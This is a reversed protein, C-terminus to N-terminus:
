RCHGGERARQQRANEAVRPNGTFRDVCGQVQDAMLFLQSLYLGAISSAFHEESKPDYQDEPSIADKTKVTQLRRQHRLDSARLMIERALLGGDGNLGANTADNLLRPQAAKDTVNLMSARLYAPFPTDRELTINRMQVQWTDHTRMDYEADPKIEATLAMQLFHRTLERADLLKAQDNTLPQPAPKGRLALVEEITPFGRELKWQLEAISHYELAGLLKTNAGKIYVADAASLKATADKFTTPTNAPVTVPASTSAVSTAPAARSQTAPTSTSPMAVTASTTTGAEPTPVRSATWWWLLLLAVGVIVIAYRTSSSTTKMAQSRENLPRGNM